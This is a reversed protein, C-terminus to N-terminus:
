SRPTTLSTTIPKETTLMHRPICIFTSAKWVADIAGYPPNLETGAIYMFLQTSSSPWSLHAGRTTCAGSVKSEGEAGNVNVISM